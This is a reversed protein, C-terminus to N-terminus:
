LLYDDEKGLKDRKIHNKIHGYIICKNGCTDNKEPSLENRASISSFSIGQPSLIRFFLFRYDKEVKTMMKKHDRFLERTWIQFHTTCTKFIVIAKLTPRDMAKKLQSIQASRKDTMHRDAWM